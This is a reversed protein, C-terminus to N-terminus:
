LAVSTSLKAWPSKSTTEAKLAQPKIVTHPKGNQSAKSIVTTPTARNAKASSAKTMRRMAPWGCNAPTISVMASAKMIRPATLM